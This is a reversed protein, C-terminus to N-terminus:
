LALSGCLTVCRRRPLFEGKCVAQAACGLPGTLGPLSVSKRELPHWTKEQNLLLPPALFPLSGLRRTLRRRTPVGDHQKSAEVKDDDEAVDDEDPSDEATVKKKSSRRSAPPCHPAIVSKCVMSTGNTVGKFCKAQGPTAGFAKFNKVTAAAELILAMAKEPRAAAVAADLEVRKDALAAACPGSTTAELLLLATKANGRAAARLLPPFSDGACCADVEAKAKLLIKTLNVRGHHAAYELPLQSSVSGPRHSKIRAAEPMVSLLAKARRSDNDCIANLLEAYVCARVESRFNPEKASVDIADALCRYFAKGHGLHSLHSLEHLFTALVFSYPYFCERNPDRLKVYITGDEGTYGVDEDCPPLEQVAAVIWGNRRAVPTADQLARLVLHRAQVDWKLSLTVVRAERALDIPKQAAVTAIQLAPAPASAPM